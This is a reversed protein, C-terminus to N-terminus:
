MKVKSAQLEQQPNESRADGSSFGFKEVEDETSFKCYATSLAPFKHENNASIQENHRFLTSTLLAYALQVGYSCNTM